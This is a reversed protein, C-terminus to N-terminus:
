IHILSLCLPTAPNLSIGVKVGLSRIKQLIRHAHLCAEQHVTIYETKECVFDEIYDGPNEIMLHVDYFAEPVAKKLCKLVPAGYTINPVFHGDMVDFHVMDAGCVMSDATEAALNALDASLISVSLETM